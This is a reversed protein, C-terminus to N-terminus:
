RPVAVQSAVRAMEDRRFGSPFDRLYASAAARAEADRGERMLRLVGLYAVDELDASPATKVASASKAHASGAPAGRADHKDDAVRRPAAVAAERRWTHGATLSIAQARDLTVLVRGEEVEIRETRGDAVVVDFETGVDEIEGDPVKVVVRRGGAPRRVRLHLTGEVLDFREVDGEVSRTYRTGAEAVVDVTTAAVVRAAPAPVTPGGSRWSVFALLLLAVAAVGAAAAVRGPVRMRSRGTQEADVAELVRNRLRRLSVDDAGPDGIAALGRALDELSSTEEACSGCSAVHSEFLAQADGTLRGDRVAEVEWSRHCRTKM